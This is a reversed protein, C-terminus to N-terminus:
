LLSRNGPQIFRASEYKDIAHVGFRQGLDGSSIPYGNRPKCISSRTVALLINSHQPQM